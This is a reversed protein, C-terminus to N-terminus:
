IAKASGNVGRSADRGGGADAASQVVTGNGGLM